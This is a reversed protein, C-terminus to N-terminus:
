IFLLFTTVAGVVIFGPLVRRALPRGGSLIVILGKVLLNSVTALLFVGAAVGMPAQNQKRLAASAVLVADVDVLGALAGTAWLGATGFAAQAANGAVLIATLLLALM